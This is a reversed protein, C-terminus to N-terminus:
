PRTVLLVDSASRAYKANTSSPLLLQSWLPTRALLSGLRWLVRQEQAVRYAPILAPMIIHAVSIRAGRSSLPISLVPPASSVSAWPYLRQTVSPLPSPPAFLPAAQASTTSCHPHASPVCACLHSVPVPKLTYALGAPPPLPTCGSSCRSRAANLALLRWRAMGGGRVDKIRLHHGPAGSRGMLGDLVALVDIRTNSVKLVGEDQTLRAGEREGDDEAM